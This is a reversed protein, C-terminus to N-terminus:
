LLAVYYSVFWFLIHSLSFCLLLIHYLSFRFLVIHCFSFCINYQVQNDAYGGCGICGVAGVRGAMKGLCFLANKNNSFSNWTKRDM